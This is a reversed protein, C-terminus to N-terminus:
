FLRLAYGESILPGYYSQVAGRLFAVDRGDRRTAFVGLVRAEPELRIEAVKHWAAPVRSFAWGWSLQVIAATPDHPLTWSELDAAEYRGERRLRVPEINCLGFTDLVHARSFYAMAGVDNALVVEGPLSTRVFEAARVHERFTTVASAIEQTPHLGASLPALAAAWALTVAATAADGWGSAVRPLAAVVAIAGALVGFGVLYADYRYVWFTSSLAYHVHLAVMLSLLAPVLVAPRWLRRSTAAGLAAAVLGGILLWAFEHHQELVLLDPRLPKLLLAWGSATEGGAKIVVSNPLLLGGQSLSLLGLAALPTVSAAGVVLARRWQRRGATVVCVGAVLFLGEYRSAALLAALWALRTTDRADPGPGPDPTTAGVTDRSLVFAASVGFAVTLLLHLVHEMGLLTMSPLPVALVLGVQAAVRTLVGAGAHRLARDAIVVLLAGCVLNVVLPTADHVGTVAFVVGLLATWLPSSSASAFDFPTCGWVADHVLTRAMAMHIYADDLAYVFRGDTGTQVATVARAVVALLLGIGIVAPLHRSIRAERPAPTTPRSVRDNHRPNRSM